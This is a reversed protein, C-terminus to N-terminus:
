DKLRALYAENRRLRNEIQLRERSEAQLAENAKQIEQIRMKLDDRARGLSETASRQAASVLEVFIATVIFM